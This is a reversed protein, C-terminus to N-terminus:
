RCSCAAGAGADWNRPGAGKLHGGRPCTYPAAPEIFVVRVAGEIPTDERQNVLREFLEAIKREGDLRDVYNMREKVPIAVMVGRDRSYYRWLSAHDIVDRMEALTADTSESIKRQTEVGYSGSDAVIKDALRRPISSQERTLDAWGLQAALMCVCIVMVRLM